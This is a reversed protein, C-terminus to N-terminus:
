HLRFLFEEFTGDSLMLSLSPAERLEAATEGAASDLPAVCGAALTVLSLLGALTSSLTHNLDHFDKRDVQM